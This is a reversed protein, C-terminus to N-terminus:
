NTAKDFFYVVEIKGADTTAIAVYKKVNGFDEVTLTEIQTTSTTVKQVETIIKTIEDNKKAATRIAPAPITQVPNVVTGSAPNRVLIPRSDVIDVKNTKTNLISTIQIPRLTVEELDSFVLTSEVIDGYTVKKSSIPKAAIFMPRRRRITRIITDTEETTTIETFNNTVVEIQGVNNQRTTTRTQVAPRRLVNQINNLVIDKTNLDKVVRV